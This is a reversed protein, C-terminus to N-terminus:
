DAAPAAGTPPTDLESRAREAAVPTLTLVLSLGDMEPSVRLFRTEGASIRLIRRTEPRRALMVEYRGPRAARHLAEGDALRGLSEGNVVVQATVAGLLVDGPRYVVLRGQGAPPAPWIESPGAPAATEPAQPTTCATLLVVALLWGACRLAAVRAKLTLERGVPEM